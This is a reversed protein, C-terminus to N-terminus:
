KRFSLGLMVASFVAGCALGITMITMGFVMDQKTGLNWLYEGDANKTLTLTVTEGVKPLRSERSAEADIEVATYGSEGMDVAITDRQVYTRDDDAGTESRVEGASLILGSYEEANKYRQASVFCLCAGVALAVTLIGFIIRLILPAKWGSIPKLEYDEDIMM